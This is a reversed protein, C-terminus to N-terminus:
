RIFNVMEEGSVAEMDTLSSVLLEEEGSELVAKTVRVIDPAANRFNEKEKKSPDWCTVFDQRSDAMVSKAFGSGNVSMRICFARQRGSTKVGQLLAQYEQGPRAPGGSGPSHLGPLRRAH